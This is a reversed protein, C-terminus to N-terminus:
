LNYRVITGIKLEGPNTKGLIDLKVPSNRHKVFYNCPICYTKFMSVHESDRRLKVRISYYTAALEGM